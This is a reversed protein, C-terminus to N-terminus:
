YQWAVSRSSIQGQLVETLPRIKSIRLCHQSFAYPTLVFVVARHRQLASINQVYWIFSPYKGPAVHCFIEKQLRTVSTNSAPRTQKNKGRLLFGTEQRNRHGKISNRMKWTLNMQDAHQKILSDESSLYIHTDAVIHASYHPTIKTWCSELVRIMVRYM